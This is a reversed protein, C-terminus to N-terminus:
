QLEFFRLMFASRAQFPTWYNLRIHFPEIGPLDLEPRETALMRRDALVIEDCDFRVKIQYKERIVENFREEIPGIDVLERMPRTIDGTYAEASDHMLAAFAFEEPVLKSLMVSHEAVSLFKQIHGNYRCIHSLAHAIDEVSILNAAPARLNIKHLSVTTFDM